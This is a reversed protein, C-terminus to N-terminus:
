LWESFHEVQNDAGLYFLLQKAEHVAALTTHRIVDYLILLQVVIFIHDNPLSLALLWSDSSRATLLLMMSHICEMDYLLWQLSTVILM